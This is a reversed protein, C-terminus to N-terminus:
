ISHVEGAHVATWRKNSFIWGCGQQGSHVKVSAASCSSHDHCLLAAGLFILVEENIHDPLPMQVLIGHVDPNEALETVISVLEEETVTEELNRDFTVIGADKCANHKM